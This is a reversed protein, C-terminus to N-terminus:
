GNLHRSCLYQNKPAAHDSSGADFIDNTIRRIFDCHTLLSNERPKKPTKNVNRGVVQRVSEVAWVRVAPSGRVVNMAGDDLRGDLAFRVYDRSTIDRRGDLFQIRSCLFRADRDQIFNANIGADVMQIGDLLNGFDVVLASFYPTRSKNRRSVLVRIHPYDV